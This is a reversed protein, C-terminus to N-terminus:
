QRRPVYMPGRHETAAFYFAAHGRDIAQNLFDHALFM